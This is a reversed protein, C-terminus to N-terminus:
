RPQPMPNLRRPRPCNRSAPPLKRQLDMGSDRQNRQQIAPMALETSEKPETLKIYFMDHVLSGAEPERSGFRGGDGPSLPAHDACARVRKRAQATADFAELRGMLGMGEVPDRKAVGARIGHQAAPK